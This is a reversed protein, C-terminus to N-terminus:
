TVLRTVVRNGRQGPERRRLGYGHRDSWRPHSARDRAPLRDRDRPHVQPGRHRQDGSDTVVHTEGYRGKSAKVVRIYGTARGSAAKLVKVTPEETMARSPHGPRGSPLDVLEVVNRGILDHVQARRIARRLTSKIMMLSRKALHNALENFFKEADTATFDKLKTAGIKRYIWKKAQGTLTDMTHQDYEISDPRGEYIVAQTLGTKAMRCAISIDHGTVNVHRVGDLLILVADPAGRSLKPGADARNAIARCLLLCDGVQAGRKLGEEVPSPWGILQSQCEVYGSKQYSGPKHRTRDRGYRPHLYDLRELACTEHDLPDAAAMVHHLMGIPTRDRDRDVRALVYGFAGQPVDQGDDVHGWVLKALQESRM